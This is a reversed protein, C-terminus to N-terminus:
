AREREWTMTTNHAEAERLDQERKSGQKRAEKSEGEGLDHLAGGAKGPVARVARPAPRPAGGASAVEERKGGGQAQWRRAGAVEKRKGGGKAQWRRASAVQATGWGEREDM